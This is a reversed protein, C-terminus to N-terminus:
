MNERHLPIEKYKRIIQGNQIPMWQSCQFAFLESQDRATEFPPPPIM